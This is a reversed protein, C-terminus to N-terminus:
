GTGRANKGSKGMPPRGDETKIFDKCREGWKKGKGFM